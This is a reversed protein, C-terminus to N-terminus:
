LSRDSEKLEVAIRYFKPELNAIRRANRRVVFVVLRLGRRHPTDDEEALHRGRLDHGGEFDTGIEVVNLVRGVAVALLRM